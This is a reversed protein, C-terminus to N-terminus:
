SCIAMQSNAQCGRPRWQVARSAPIADKRQLQKVIAQIPLWAEHALGRAAPAIPVANADGALVVDIAIHRRSTPSHRVRYIVKQEGITVPDSTVLTDPSKEWRPGVSMMPIVVGNAALTQRALVYDERLVLFESGRNGWLFQGRAPNARLMRLTKEYQRQEPTRYNATVCGGLTLVSLALVSYSHLGRMSRQGPM